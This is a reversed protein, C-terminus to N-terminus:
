YEKILKKFSQTNFNILPENYNEQISELYELNFLRKYLFNDNICLVSDLTTLKRNNLNDFFGSYINNYNDLFAEKNYFENKTSHIELDIISENFM